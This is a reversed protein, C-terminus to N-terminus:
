VNALQVRTDPEPHRETQRQKIAQNIQPGLIQLSAPSMIDQHECHALPHLTLDSIYPQWCTAPEIYDPRDKEAVFVNVPGDYSPTKTAALLTVADKYNAFIQALMAQREQQLEGDANDMAENLVQQQEREAGLTAEADDPDTWDHVEAPYTDLLGLFDVREGAARLRAAMGYAITGGLSYGLLFYPGHPQQDRLIQLQREILEDMDRSSAILGHPRPSQLGVIPMNNDLYRSLVSYQWAFGSGPYVCFLPTDSGARLQIVPDFGDSGFDNLMVDSNLQAALLAVTPSTMIQGVPVSRELEKRIEVALTMALLSHGGIAFFDDDANVSDVGLVRAFIAALRSELGRAPARGSLTHVPTTNPAPLAKRDLKGNANLPLADMAVLAAPVMASSLQQALRTQLMDSTLSPSSHTASDKLVYYAVLQRQDGQAQRDSGLVQAHVAADAIEPQARLVAEIEGLEIRQGRIKLQDDVRGLYEVKGSALHRVIDGTRYMRTGNGQPDAVFRSASLEARQLYGAALQDGCLYLEGSAGLPVPRLYADLVRLQTNWVPLGIPVGSGGEDLDGCAPEYTVDVAAETPGYLNHLQAEFMESFTRALVKSLAEGSCFVRRLSRCDRYESAALSNCFVALMSPVFHMTTIQYHDITRALADPDRHADPAAMVLRAGVMFSWFFEWVSVDFSSPTKQLVVDDSHLPYQHQMWLIRNVIANHPVLVGKPRGTTGSTYLLYAPANATLAVERFQHQATDPMLTEFHVCSVDSFRPANATETILLRPKADSLMFALREDPYSTDLPLYAAGAEIVALLAISLRVSRPLAVAVIDGPCVGQAQLDGALCQVQHRVQAYTLSHEADQLALASPSRAAQERLHDRLTSVPLAQYTANIAALQAQEELTQLEYRCVPTQPAKLLTDIFGAIRKALQAPQAIAGRNEVLLTTREGPLVLLALPYHSYGRNHIDTIRTGALDYGLYDSDPYNEVVLLSDFLPQGGAQRQIEALGPGDHELLTMHTAAVTGLQQWLDQHPNLQFAVPITNLFLGLQQDLGDINASRGSVPMGFTVAERGSIASLALAWIGQMVLNLTLGHAQTAQRLALSTAEDLTFVAEEVTPTAQEFLVCPRADALYDRWLDLSATHDRNVLQQLVRPYPSESRARPQENDRYAALLRRLLLPTSWGDILLHHIVLYLSFQETGTKVLCARLMGGFRESPLPADIVETTINALAQARDSPPLYSIDEFRWPWRLVGAAPLLFVPQTATEMDFLGALQPNESLVVSLARHLRETNLSGALDLRTWASYNAGDGATQALYLMGQQLPLVPALARYVGHRQKLKDTDATTLALDAGPNRELGTVALATMALAMARPTRAVFVASPKLQYGKGRLATTLGIALISDGGLEFFDDEAGPNDVALIDAMLACLLQEREGVPVVHNRSLLRPRPLAKKDIKGNVTFPMQTLLTLAAPVMYEPLKAHLIDLFERTLAESNHSELDPVACYGLLRHSNNVAEAVVTATEVGPLLSLANEVDALEIRYGRVKVQDDARGLYEILGDNSWRVLDGSRYMREGDRFPNAVFRSATLDSRNVYGNALSAGAIYLEGVAGLPVPQLSTDLVYVHVNGIPRGVTPEPAMDLSAGLTDVTNETPGYLNYSVVEPHERLEHWLAAPAAEGGIGILGPRHLDTTLLGNNLLASCLSPPMDLADLQNEQVYRVIEFADRRLEEDFLHLEQGLALWLTQDWASDFAISHSHMTRVRRGHSAQIQAIFPEFLQQGHSNLLNALAGHSVQVGKPTGTSGSTFIIYAPDEPSPQALADALRLMVDPSVPAAQSMDSPADLDMRACAPLEISSLSIVLVPNAVSFIADIRERPYEPEIPVWCAGTQMIAFMAAIADTQRPLAVAVNQGPQVGCMLLWESLQDVRAGLQAFTLKHMGCVLALDSPQEAVRQRFATCLTPLQHTVAPGQSWHDLQARESDALLSLTQLSQEPQGLLATIFCQLREGHLAVDAATYYRANARLDLRIRQDHIQVGFEFDDLPGAALHETTGTLTDFQLHYDFMKYNLLPGYLRRGSGVLHADRQIAEADYRSHKRVQKIEQKLQRAADLWSDGLNLRLAVPLVTVVPASATIAVSGMRRMFPMGLTQQNAGTIRAIYSALASLLLDPASLGHHQALQQLQGLTTEPLTLYHTHQAATPLVDTIPVRSLSAVPPLEACYTQWFAKDRAHQPSARYQDCEAIVDAVPCPRADPPTTQRVLATYHQAIRKTLATFSYGDLMIHHYRQYWLWRPQAKGAPTTEPALKFLINVLAPHEGDCVHDAAIDAQMWQRARAEADGDAAYDIHQLAPLSELSVAAPIRQRGVGDVETYGAIVTDAEQLGLAVAREFLAPQLAGTIAVAHAIVFTNKEESVQEALWIGEQTPLLPLTHSTM